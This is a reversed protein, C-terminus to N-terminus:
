MILLMETTLSFMQKHLYTHDQVKEVTSHFYTHTQVHCGQKHTHTHTHTYKLSPWKFDEARDHTYHERGREAELERCKTM